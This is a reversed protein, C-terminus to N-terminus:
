PKPLRYIGSLNESPPIPPGRFYIFGDIAAEFLRCKDHAVSKIVNLRFEAGPPLQDLQARVAAVGAASLDPQIRSM